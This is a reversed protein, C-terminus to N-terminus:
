DFKRSHSLRMTVNTQLGPLHTLAGERDNMAYSRGDAADQAMDGIKRAFLVLGPVPHPKDAVGKGAASELLPLEGREAREEREANMAERHLAVDARHIEDRCPAGIPMQRRHMGVHHMPMAGLAANEAAKDARDQPEGAMGDRTEVTRM